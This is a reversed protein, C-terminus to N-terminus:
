MVHSHVTQLLRRRDGSIHPLRIAGQALSAVPFAAGRSLWQDLASKGFSRFRTFGFALM